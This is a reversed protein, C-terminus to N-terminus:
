KGTDSIEYGTRNRSEVLWLSGGDASDLRVMHPSNEDVTGDAMFRMAPLHQYMTLATGGTNLVALQLNGALELNEAQPDGGTPPTEQVMGYRGNKEDLWVVVTLGESIARSQGEHMLAMMRRAESELARGRIFGTMRPAILSVAVVLLVMVLVLEVLTFASQHRRKNGASLTM